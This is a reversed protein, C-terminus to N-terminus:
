EKIYNFEPEKYTENFLVHLSHGDFYWLDKQEVFFHVDKSYASMGIEDPLDKSVGLSFGSQVTGCGGYRVFFRISDGKDLNLEDRYWNAAQEDILLKM